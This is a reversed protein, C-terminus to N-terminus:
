QPLIYVRMKRVGNQAAESYTPVWMDIINGKISGGTDAAVAYGYDPKGDLSQVYVRTGLPIIKPDVAILGRKTRMGTATKGHIIYSYAKCDIYACNSVADITEETAKENLPSAEEAGYEIIETVPKQTINESILEKETIKGNTSTIRYRAERSGNKGRSIIKSDNRMLQPNAHFERDFEISESQSIEQVNVRTVVIETDPTVLTDASPTLTDYNGISIGEAQLLKGVSKSVTNVTFSSTGLTVKVPFARELLVVSGDTLTKPTIEDGDSLTIGNKLLLTEASNLATTVTFSKGDACVTVTKFDSIACVTFFVLAFLTLASILFPRGTCFKGLKKLNLLM